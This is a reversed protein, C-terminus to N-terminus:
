CLGITSSHTWRGITVSNTRRIGDKELAIIKSQVGPDADEQALALIATACVLALLFSTLRM